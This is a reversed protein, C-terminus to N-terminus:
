ARTASAGFTTAESARARGTQYALARTWRPQRFLHAHADRLRTGEAVGEAVCAKKRDYRRGEYLPRVRPSDFRHDGVRGM